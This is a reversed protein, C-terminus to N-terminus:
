FAQSIREVCCLKCSLGNALVIKPKEVCLFFVCVADPSLMHFSSFFFALLCANKQKYNYHGCHRETKLCPVLGLCGNEQCLLM